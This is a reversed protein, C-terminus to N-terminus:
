IHALTRKMIEYDKRLVLMLSGRMLKKELRLGISIIIKARIYSSSVSTLYFFIIIGSVTLLTLVSKSIFIRDFIQLMYLMPTLMLLNAISSAIFIWILDVKNNLFLKLLKSQLFSSFNKSDM